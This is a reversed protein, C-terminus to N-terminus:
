ADTTTKPLHVSVSSHEWIQPMPLGDPLWQMTTLDLIDASDCKQEYLGGNWGGVVYAHGQFLTSTAYVRPQKMQQVTEWTDNDIDYRDVSMTAARRGSDSMRSWGGMAYIHNNYTFMCHDARPTLMAACESWQDVDPDYCWLQNCATEMGDQTGGSVYLKGRCSTGALQARNTPLSAIHSWKVALPDYVECLSTDPTASQSTDVEGGIAYLQGNLAGLYFRCREHAMPPLSTWCMTDPNFCFGFPHPVEQMQDNFCGGLVYVQNDLVTMGFDCQDVHPIRTLPMLKQCDPDLYMVDNNMGADVNFGGAVLLAEFYGRKNLVGPVKVSLEDPNYHRTLCSELAPDASVVRQYLCSELVSQLEAPQLNGLLVHQLLGPLSVTRESLDFDVWSLVATLVEVEVCNVPYESKLVSALLQVPMHMFDVTMTFQTWHKCIFCHVYQQLRNLCYLEAMKAVELCNDLCLNACLYSECAAVAPLIQVHTAGSLVAVVNDKNINLKSTYAFDILQAMGEATVGNLVIRYQSCEKLGDTFMARFYDSCSALVVRHAPFEQGGAVLTVDFLHGCERLYSLGALLRTSHDSEEFAFLGPHDADGCKLSSGAETVATETVPM